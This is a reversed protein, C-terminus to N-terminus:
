PIAPPRPTVVGVGNQLKGVRVGPRWELWDERVGLARPRDFLCEVRGLALHTPDLFPTNCYVCRLNCRNTVAFAASFPRPAGGAHYSVLSMGYSLGLRALDSSRM